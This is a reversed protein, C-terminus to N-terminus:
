IKYIRVDWTDQSFFDKAADQVKDVVTKADDGVDRATRSNSEAALCIQKIYSIIM